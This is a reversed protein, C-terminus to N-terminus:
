CYFLILRPDRNEDSSLFFPFGARLSSNCSHTTTPIHLAYTQVRMSWSALESGLLACHSAAIWMIGWALVLVDRAPLVGCLATGDHWCLRRHLVTSGWMTAVPQHSKSPALSSRAIAMSVTAPPQSSERSTFPRFITSALRFVRM